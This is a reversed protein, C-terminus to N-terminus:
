KGALAEVLETAQVRVVDVASALADVQEFTEVAKISRQRRAVGIVREVLELTDPRLGPAEAPVQDIRGCLGLKLLWCCAVVGARGVGGRCHVLVNLGRLTYEHIVRTLHHDLEAPSSPGLGEPIPIRLVWLGVAKAAREYSPWPAGLLELEADDLCCVICRVSLKSIRLMDADLDRCVGSRGKVPGQLRVKKGPCSSLLLNGLTLTPEPPPSKEDLAVAANIAATLEESLTANNRLPPVFLQPSDVRQQSLVVSPLTYSPPIQLPLSSSRLFQSILAIYTPPLISSISLPHTDSTKIHPGYVAPRPIHENLAAALHDHLSHQHPSAGSPGLILPPQTQISECPWWPFLAEAYM